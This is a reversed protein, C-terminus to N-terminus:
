ALPGDHSGDIKVGSLMGTLVRWAHGAESPRFLAALAGFFM